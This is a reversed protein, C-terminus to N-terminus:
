LNFWGKVKKWLYVGYSEGEREILLNVLLIIALTAMCFLIFEM